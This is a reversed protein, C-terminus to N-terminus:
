VFPFFFRVLKQKTYSPTRTLTRVCVSMTQFHCTFSHCSEFHFTNTEFINKRECWKEREWFEEADRQANLRAKQSEHRKCTHLRIKLWAHRNFQVFGVRIIICLVYININFIDLALCECQIYGSDYPTRHVSYDFPFFRCCCFFTSCVNISFWTFIHYNRIQLPSAFFFKWRRVSDSILYKNKPIRIVFSVM